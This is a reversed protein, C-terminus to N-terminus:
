LTKVNEGLAQIRLQRNEDYIMVQSIGQSRLRDVLERAAQQREQAPLSLWEEGITGVFAPGAGDANRHGHVLHPSVKALETRSFRDLNRQLLDIVGLHHLGLTLAILATASASTILKWRDRWSANEGSPRAHPRSEGALAESTLSKAEERLARADRREQAASSSAAAGTAAATPPALRRIERHNDVMPAYLFKNRLDALSYASQFSEGAFSQNVKGKLLDDLERVWQEAIMDPDIGIDQLEIALVNMSRCLLGVMVIVTELDSASISGDRLSAKEGLTLYDIDLAWAVRDIATSKRDRGTLRRVVADHLDRFIESEFVSTNDPTSEPKIESTSEDADIWSQTQSVEAAVCQLLAVNYTVIARLMNPAFYSRGLQSKRSRLERQQMEDRLDTEVNAVTFFEGEIQALQSQYEAEARQSIEQLTPTLLVPDRPTSRGEPDGETCLLTILYDILGLKEPLADPAEFARLAVLDLLHLLGPRDEHLLDPLNAQLQALLIESAVEFISSALQEQGDRTRELSKADVERLKSLRSIEERGARIAEVISPASTSLCYPALVGWASQLAQSRAALPQLSQPLGGQKNAESKPGSRHDRSGPDPM